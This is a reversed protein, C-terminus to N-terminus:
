SSPAIWVWSHPRMALIASGKPWPKQRISNIPRPYSSITALGSYAPRKPACLFLFPTRHTLGGAPACPADIELATCPARPRHSCSNAPISANYEDSDPGPLGRPHGRRRDKSHADPRSPPPSRATASSRISRVAQAIGMQLSSVSWSIKSFTHVLMFFGAKM